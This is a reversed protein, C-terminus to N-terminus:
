GKSLPFFGSITFCWFHRTQHFSSTSVLCFHKFQCFNSGLFFSSFLWGDPLAQSTGVDLSSYRDWFNFVTYAFHLRSRCDSKKLALSIHTHILPFYFCLSIIKSYFQEPQLLKRLPCNAVHRLSRLHRPFIKLILFM